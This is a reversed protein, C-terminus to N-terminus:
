GLPTAPPMPGDYDDPAGERLVRLGLPTLEGGVRRKSDPHTLLERARAGALADRVYYGQYGLVAATDKVAKTGGKTTM